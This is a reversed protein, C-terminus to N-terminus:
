KKKAMGGYCFKDAGPKSPGKADPKKAIEKDKILGGAKFSRVSGVEKKTRGGKKLKTLDTKEGPHEQEDHMKFAKKVIKKDQAIDADEYDKKSHDIRPTYKAM